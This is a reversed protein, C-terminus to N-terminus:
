SFLEYKTLSLATEFDNKMVAEEVAKVRNHEPWITWGVYPVNISNKILTMWDWRGAFTWPEELVMYPPKIREVSLLPIAKAGFKKPTIEVDELRVIVIFREYYVVKNEFLNQFFPAFLKYRLQRDGPFYSLQDRTYHKRLEAFTMCANGKKDIVLMYALLLLYVMLYLDIFPAKNVNSLSPQV